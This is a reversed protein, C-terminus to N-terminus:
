MFRKGGFLSFKKKAGRIKEAAKEPRIYGLGCRKLEQLFLQTVTEDIQDYTNVFQELLIDAKEDWDRWGPFTLERELAFTHIQDTTGVFLMCSDWSFAMGDEVGVKTKIEEAQWILEMEPLSWIKVGESTKAALMTGDPSPCLDDGFEYSEKECSLKQTIKWTNTDIILIKEKSRAYLKSADPSLHLYGNCPFVETMKRVKGSKVDMLAISSNSVLYVAYKGSPSFCISSFVKRDFGKPTVEKLLRGTRIDWMYMHHGDTCMIEKENPSIAIHQIYGVREKLNLTIESVKENKATDWAAAKEETAILLLKGSRSYGFGKVSADDPSEYTQLVRGTEDCVTVTEEHDRRVAYGRGKPEAIM